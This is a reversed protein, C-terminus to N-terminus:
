RPERWMFWVKPGGGPLTEESIIEFGHRQYLPLNLENSSELYAPLAEEDCIRTGQKLLASGVGEGQTQQRCGVFLLHFHPKHPHHRDFLRAQQPIRLLPRPGARFLLRALLKALPLNPPIDFKEGPPLWLAAGRGQQELHMIGRPLFIKEILVRFFAPYLDPAPIVWNMVPDNSFADALIQTMTELEAVNSDIIAPAEYM